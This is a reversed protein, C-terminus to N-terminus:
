LKNDSFLMEVSGADNLKKVQLLSKNVAADNENLNEMLDCNRPNRAITVCYNRTEVSNITPVNTQRPWIVTLLDM